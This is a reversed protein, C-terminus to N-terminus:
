SNNVGLVEAIAKTLQKLRWPKPVTPYIASSMAAAIEPGIYGSTLIIKLDPRLVKAQEALEFGNMHPMMIDSFLADIRSEETALIQLARAGCTAGITGYGLEELIATGISLVSEDDDVVLIKYEKGGGHLTPLRTM